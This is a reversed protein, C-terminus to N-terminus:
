QSAREETSPYTLLKGVTISQAVLGHREFLNKTSRDGPLAQGSVWELGASQAEELIRMIMADALGIERADPIVYVHTIHWRKNNVQTVSCSGLVSTGLGAVWSQTPLSDSHFDISGRYQSSEEKSLTIHSAIEQENEASASRVFVEPQSTVRNSM